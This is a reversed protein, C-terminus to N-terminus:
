NSTRHFHESRQDTIVRRAFLRARVEFLFAREQILHFREKSRGSDFSNNVGFQACQTRSRGRRHDNHRFRFVRSRRYGRANTLRHRRGTYRGVAGISFFTEGVETFGIAGSGVFILAAGSGFVSATTSSSSARAQHREVVLRDFASDGVAFTDFQQLRHQATPASRAGVPDDFLECFTFRRRSYGGYLLSPSRRSSIAPPDRKCKPPM